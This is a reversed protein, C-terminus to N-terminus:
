GAQELFRIQERYKREICAADLGCANRQTLWQRQHELLARRRNADSANRVRQYLASM